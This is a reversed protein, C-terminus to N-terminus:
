PTTAGPTAPAGPTSAAPTAAPTATTNGPTNAPNSGPTSTDTPTIKMDLKRGDSLITSGKWSNDSQVQIDLPNKSADLPLKGLEENPLNKLESLNSIRISMNSAQMALSVNQNAFRVATGDSQLQIRGLNLDRETATTVGRGFKRPADTIKFTLQYFGSAKQVRQAFIKDKAPSWLARLNPLSLDNTQRFQESLSLARSEEGGVATVLAAVAGLALEKDASGIMELLKDDSGVAAAWTYPEPLKGEALSKGFWKLLASTEVRERMLNTVLSETGTMNQYVRVAFGQREGFSLSQLTEVIPRNSGILLRTARISADGQARFVLQVLGKTAREPETQRGILDVVQAPTPTQEVALDIILTMPDLENVNAPATIRFFDLTQWALSKIRPDGSRLAKFLNHNVSTVTILNAIKPRPRSSLGARRAAASNVAPKGLVSIVGQALWPRISVGEQEGSSLLDLTLAVIRPDISGLLQQDLMMSAPRHEGALELVAVIAKERRDDQLETIRLTLPIRPALEPRTVATTMLERLLDAPPPGNPDALSRQVEAIVDSPEKLSMMGKIKEGRLGEPLKPALKLLSVTASNPPITTVLEKVGVAYAESDGSQLINQFLTFIPDGTTAHRGLRTISLAFASIRYSYAHKLSTLKNMKQVQSLVEGLAEKSSATDYGIQTAALKRVSRLEDLTITWPDFGPGDITLDRAGPQMAFIAWIVRPRDFEFETKLARIEQQLKKFSEMDSKFNANENAIRAQAARPDEGPARRGTPPKPQREQMAGTTLLLSYPHASKVNDLGIATRELKYNIKGDPTANFSRVLRPFDATEAKVNMERAVSGTAAKETEEWLRYAVFKAGRVKITAGVFPFPDKISTVVLPLQILDGSARRIGDTTSQVFIDPSTLLTAIEIDVKVADELSVKTSGRNGGSADDGTAGAAPDPAATASAASAAPDAGPAASASAPAPSSGPAPAQAHSQSAACTFVLTLVLVRM